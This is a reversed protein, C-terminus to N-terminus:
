DVLEGRLRAQHREFAANQRKAWSTEFDESAPDHGEKHKAPTRPKPTLSAADPIGGAEPAAARRKPTNPRGTTRKPAPATAEEPLAAFAALKRKLLADAIEEPDRDYQDLTEDHYRQM